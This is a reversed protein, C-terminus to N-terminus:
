NLIRYLGVRSRGSIIVMDAIIGNKNGVTYVDGLKSQHENSKETNVCSWYLRSVILNKLSELNGASGILHLDKKTLTAM